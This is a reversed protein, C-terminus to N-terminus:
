GQSECIISKSYPDSIWHCEEEKRDRYLNVLFEKKRWDVGFLAGGKGVYIEKNIKSMLNFKM